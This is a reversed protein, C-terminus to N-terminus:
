KTGMETTDLTIKVKAGLDDIKGTDARHFFKVGDFDKAGINPNYAMDAIYGSGGGGGRGNGAGEGGVAGNGGRGGLGDNKRKGATALFAGEIDAFGRAITATNNLITGDRM